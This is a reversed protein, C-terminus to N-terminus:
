LTLSFGSAPLRFSQIANIEKIDNFDKRISDPFEFWFSQLIESLGTGSGSVKASM